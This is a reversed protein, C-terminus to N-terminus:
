RTCCVVQYQYWSFQWFELAQREKYLAQFSYDWMSHSYPGDKLELTVAPDGEVNESQSISWDMNRAFGHQLALPLVYSRISTWCCVLLLYELLIIYSASGFKLKTSMVEYSFLYYKPHQLFFYYYFTFIHCVQQMTGPGFQPFCHPIGGSDLFCIIMKHFSLYCKPTSILTSTPLSIHFEIM